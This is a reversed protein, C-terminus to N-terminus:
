SVVPVQWTSLTDNAAPKSMGILDITPKTCRLVAIDVCGPMSTLKGAKETLGGEDVAVFCAGYVDLRHRGQYSYMTDSELRECKPRWKFSATAVGTYNYGTNARDLDRNGQGFEDEGSTLSDLIGYPFRPSNRANALPCQGKQKVICEKDDICAYVVSDGTIGGNNCSGM